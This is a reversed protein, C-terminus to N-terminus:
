NGTEMETCIIKIGTKVEDSQGAETEGRSAITSCLVLKCPKWKENWSQWFTLVHRWYCFDAVIYSEQMNYLHLQIM